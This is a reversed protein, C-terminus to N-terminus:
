KTSKKEKQELDELEDIFENLLNQNRKDSNEILIGYKYNSGTKYMRVIRGEISLVEEKWLVIDIDVEENIGIEERCVISVGTRSINKVTAFATKESDNYVVRGCLNVTYRKSNRSNDFKRIKVVEFMMKQPHIIGVDDVKCDFIYEIDEKILRCLITDDVMVDNNIFESILKVSLVGVGPMVDEIFDNLWEAQPNIKVGVLDGSKLLDGLSELPIEGQYSKYANDTM